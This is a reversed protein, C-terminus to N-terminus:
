SGEEDEIAWVPRPVAPQDLRAWLHLTTNHVNVWHARPPLIQVALRDGLLLEKVEKLEEWSPLAGLRSVSVHLWQGEGEYEECTLFARLGARVSGRVYARITAPPYTNFMAGPVGIQSWSAPLVLPAYDAVPLAKMAGEPM